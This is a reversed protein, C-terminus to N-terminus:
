PTVAATEPASEEILWYRNIVNDTNLIKHYLATLKEDLTKKSFTSANHKLLVLKKAFRLFNTYGRKQDTTMKRNRMVYIRFTEILSLLAETDKLAYYTRLLLFSTNLHYKVDTFQVLLLAYLAENYMKKNYYLFALNFNYANERRSPHIRDKFSQLFNETWEFEELKCGLVTINKYDWESLFGNDFMIGNKNKLSQKYLQFLENQYEPYGGNIRLICYNYAFTYLNRGEKAPLSDQEKALIQKLRLYHEENEQERLTMLITYYMVISTDERYHDWNNKIHELLTELFRFEYKTNLMMMNATLHCSNVLKERIYFKDLNDLMKDFFSSKSRDKFQAEYYGLLNNLRFATYYFNSDRYEDNKLAKDLLKARNKLLDFQNTEFTYELTFLQELYKQEEIFQYALFRHYLKKLYSMVNHLKQEDFAEGPFLKKFVYTRELQKESKELGALILKLLEQTKEHQNFYPSFVFQELRDRDKLPLERILKVLRSQQM